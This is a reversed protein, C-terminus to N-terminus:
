RWRWLLSYTGSIGSHNTSANILSSALSACSAEVLRLREVITAREDESMNAANDRLLPDRLLKVVTNVLTTVHIKATTSM